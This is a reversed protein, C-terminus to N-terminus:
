LMDMEKDCDTCIPTGAEALEEYSCSIQRGCDPCKWARSSSCVRAKKVIPWRESGVIEEFTEWQRISCPWGDPDKSIGSDNEDSGEVDYDYLTVAVGQPKFFVDAVGGRVTVIM